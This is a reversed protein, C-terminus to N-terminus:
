PSLNFFLAILFLQKRSLLPRPGKATEKELAALESLSTYPANRLLEAITAEGFSPLESLFIRILDDNLEGPRNRIEFYDAWTDAVDAILGTDVQAQAAPLFAALALLALAALKRVM